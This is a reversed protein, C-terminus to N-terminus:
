EFIQPALIKLYILPPVLINEELASPPPVLINERFALPPVLFLQCGKEWYFHHIAHRTQYSLSQSM